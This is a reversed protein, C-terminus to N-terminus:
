NYLWYLEQKQKEEFDGIKHVQQLTLAIDDLGKLLADKRFEDIEFNIMTGAPTTVTQQELEIIFKVGSNSSIEDM